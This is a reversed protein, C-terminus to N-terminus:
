SGQNSEDADKDLLDGLQDLRHEWNMWRELIVKEQSKKMMELLKTFDEVTVPQKLLMLESVSELGALLKQQMQITEKLRAIQLSVIQLPSFHGGTVVSKIEELSLGLEKLSLIQQLRSLDAQNYLRHGSDSHASPSFLGIQDYFRLTRLTLGTLKALDGVKWLQKM